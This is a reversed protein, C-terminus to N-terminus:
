GRVGEREFFRAELETEPRLPGPDHWVIEGSPSVALRNPCGTMEPSQFYRLIISETVVYKERVTEPRPWSPDHNLVQGTSSITARPITRDTEFRMPKWLTRAMPALHHNTIM